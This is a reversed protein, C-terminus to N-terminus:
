KLGLPNELVVLIKLSQHCKIIAEQGWVLGGVCMSKKDAARAPTKKMYSNYHTTLTNAGLADHRVMEEGQTTKKWMSRSKMMHNAKARYCILFQPKSLVLYKHM